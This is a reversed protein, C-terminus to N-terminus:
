GLPRIGGNEIKFIGSNRLFNELTRLGKKYNPLKASLETGSVRPTVARGNASLKQCIDMLMDTDIAPDLGAM